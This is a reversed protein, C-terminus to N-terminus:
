ALCGVIELKSKQEANCRKRVKMAGSDKCFHRLVNPLNSAVLVDACEEFELSIPGDLNV